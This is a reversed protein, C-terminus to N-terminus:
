TSTRWAALLLLVEATQVLRRCFHRGPWTPLGSVHRGARYQYSTRASGPERGGGGGPGDDDDRVSLALQLLLAVGQV